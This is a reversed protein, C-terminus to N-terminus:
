LLMQESRQEVSCLGRVMETIPLYLREKCNPQFYIKNKTLILRIEEDLRAFDDPEIKLVGIYYNVLSIAHENIARFLNKGNLKTKCLREVRALLEVKIKEATEGTDESKSNEIIGLYKYGQTGDM